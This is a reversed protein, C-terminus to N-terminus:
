RKRGTGTGGAVGVVTIVGPNPWGVLVRWGERVLMKGVSPGIREGGRSHHGQGTICQFGTQATRGKENVWWAAVREKCVRTADRVSMGHLDISHATSQSAALADAAATDATRAKVNLDRGQQSYYAAVAGLGNSTNGRRHAAAAKAYFENRQQRYAFGEEAHELASSGEPFVANLANPKVPPESWDLNLPAHRVEIQVRATNPASTLIQALEAANSPSTFILLAEATSSPLTPYAELLEYVRVELLVSDEENLEMQLEQHAQIIALISSRVSAGNAHYISRAQNEPVFTKAAILEIDRRSTDWKSGPVEAEPSHASSEVKRKGKQKRKRRPSSTISEEFADVGRTRAGSEELFSQNMLDDICINMDEKAKKLSHQIDFPRLNPFINLLRAQKDETTLHEYEASPLTQGGSLAGETSGSQSGEFDLSSLGQSMSTSDTSSSWESTKAGASGTIEALGAVGSADFGSAEEAEAGEKISDLVQRLAATEEPNTLDYDLIISLFTQM